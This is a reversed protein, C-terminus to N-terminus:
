DHRYGVTFCFDSDMFRRGSLDWNYKNGSDVESSQTDSRSYSQRDFMIVRM